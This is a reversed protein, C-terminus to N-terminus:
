GSGIGGGKEARKGSDEGSCRSWLNGEQCSGSPGAVLSEEKLDGQINVINGDQSSIM